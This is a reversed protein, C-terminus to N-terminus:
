SSPDATKKEDGSDGCGIMGAALCATLAVAWFRRGKM